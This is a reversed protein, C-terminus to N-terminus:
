KPPLVTFTRAANVPLQGKTSVTVRMTYVGPSLGALNVTVARPWGTAPPSAPAQDRFTLRIAADTSGTLAHLLGAVFGREVADPWITVAVDAEENAARGYEEWFVGLKERHAFTTTGLALPLAGGPGELARPLEGQPEYFLVDSLGVRQRPEPPPAVGLRIRALTGDGSDRTALVEFGVVLSDLPVALTTVWNAVPPGVLQRSASDKPPSSATLGWFAFMGASWRVSEPSPDRRLGALTSDRSADFAGVLLAATGRRFYALQRDSLDLVTSAYSPTFREPVRPPTACMKSYSNTDSPTLALPWGDAPGASVDWDGPEALLPSRIAFPAPLFHYRASRNATWTIACVSFGGGVRGRGGAGAQPVGEIKRQPQFSWWSDSAGRRILDASDTALVVRGGMGTGRSEAMMGCRMRDACVEDLFQEWLELEVARTLHEVRRDNGPVLWSPDALWWVRANFEGRAPSGCALGAPLQSAPDDFLRSVDELRCRDAAPLRVLGNAFSTDAAPFRGARALAYGQLMFCWGDVGAGACSRAAELARGRAGMVGLYYVRQGAVWKDGPIQGAITDLRAVMAARRLAFRSSDNNAAGVAGQCLLNGTGGRSVYLDYAGAIFCPAVRGEFCPARGVKAVCMISKCALQVSVTQVGCDSAAPSAFEYAAVREYEFVADVATNHLALSDAAVYGSEGRPGAALQQGDLGPARSSGVVVIIGYAAM